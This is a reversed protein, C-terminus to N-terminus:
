FTIGLGPLPAEKAQVLVKFTEGMGSGPFLLPWLEQRFAIKGAEGEIGVTMEEVLTALGAAFLFARQNILPANLLGLCPGNRMLASFDASATIDSFGPDALVDDVIESGRFGRVTGEPRMPGFLRTAVDGYDITLILGRGMKEATRALWENAAPRIEFSFSEDPPMGNAALEEIMISAEIMVKPSSLSLWKPERGEPGSKVHLETLKGERMRLVHVPMADVLENSFYMGEYNEPPAKIILEEHDRLNALQRAALAPSKEDPSYRLRRYLGSHATKIRDLMDRALIGEGPGGEVLIFPDPNGLLNDTTATFDGLCFAIVKSIHPSTIFDGRQGISVRGTSYYGNQPDYLAREMFAAFPTTSTGADMEKGTDCFM